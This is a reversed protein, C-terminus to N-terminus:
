VLFYRFNVFVQSKRVNFLSLSAMKVRTKISLRNTFSFQTTLRIRYHTQKMLIIRAKKGRENLCIQKSQKKNRAIWTLMTLPTYDNKVNSQIISAICSWLFRENKRDLISSLLFVDLQKNSTNLNNAFM